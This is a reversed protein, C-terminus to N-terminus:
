RGEIVSREYILKLAELGLESARMMREEIKRALESPEEGGMFPKAIGKALSSDVVVLSAARLRRLGALVYFTATDMDLALVNYRTWKKAEEGNEMYYINTSAILGAEYKEEFSNLADMLGKLVKFNGCAPYSLPAYAESIKDSRVAAMVVVFDGISLRPTIATATGVRLFVRGGIRSFEEIMVALSPGGLGGSSVTLRVGKYFGTVTVIGALGEIRTVNDMINALHDIMSPHEVLLIHSAVDESTCRTYRQVPTIM